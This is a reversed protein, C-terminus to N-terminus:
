VRRRMTLSREAVHSQIVRGLDRALPSFTGAAGALNVGSLAAEGTISGGLLVRNIEVAEETAKAIRALLPVVKEETKSGGKGEERKLWAGYQEMENRMDLIKNNRWAIEDDFIKKAPGKWINDWLSDGMKSKEEELKVVEGQLKDIIKERGEKNFRQWYEDKQGTGITSNFEGASKTADQILKDLSQFVGIGAAAGAAAAAIGVVTTSTFTVQAAAAAATTAAIAKQMALIANLGSKVADFAWMGAWISAILQINGLIAGIIPMVFKSWSDIISPIRGIFDLMAGIAGTLVAPDVTFLRTFKDAIETLRGSDVVTKIAKSMAELGPTVAKWIVDGVMRLGRSLNDLVTTWKAANADGMIEGMNGFRSQIISMVGEIAQQADGQFSGSKDFKLGVSELDPRSIGFERMREFAEGFNGAKLRGLASTFSMLSEESAGFLSAMTEVAPLYKETTLGFTELLRASTALQKTDFFASSIALNESFKAIEKAREFSGTVVALQRNLVDFDSSAKLAAGGLAAFAGGAMLGAAAQYARGVANTAKTVQEAKSLYDANNLRFETILTTIISM